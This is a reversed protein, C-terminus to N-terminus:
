IQTSGFAAPEATSGSVALITSDAELEYMDFFLPHVLGDAYEAYAYITAEHSSSEITQQFFSGTTADHGTVARM